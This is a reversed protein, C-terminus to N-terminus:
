SIPQPQCSGPCSALLDPEWEEWLLEVGMLLVSLNWHTPVGPALGCEAWRMHVCNGKPRLPIPLFSVQFHAQAM